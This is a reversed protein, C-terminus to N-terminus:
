IEGAFNWVKCVGRVFGDFIGLVGAPQFCIGGCFGAARRDVLDFRIWFSLLVRIGGSRLIGVVMTLNSTKVWLVTSLVYLISLAYEIVQPSVRYLKLIDDAFLYVMGGMAIAGILVLIYTRRAFGYAEDKKGSGIKNGIIIGLGDSVGM